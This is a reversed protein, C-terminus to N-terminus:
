IAVLAFIAVTFLAQCFIYDAIVGFQVAFMASVAYNPFVATFKQLLTPGAVALTLAAQLQLNM